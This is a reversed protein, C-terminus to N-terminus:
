FMRKIVVLDSRNLWEDATESVVKGIQRGKIEEGKAHIVQNNGIYLLVHGIGMLFEPNYHGWGGKIFILDGPQIQSKSVKKGLSAQALATRPLKVNVLDFLYVIFSSCDFIKPADYIKAGYKYPKGLHKRAFKIIKEIKQDRKM